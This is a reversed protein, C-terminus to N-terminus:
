SPLDFKKKLREFLLREKAAESKDQKEAAYVRERAERETEPRKFSLRFEACVGDGGSTWADHSIKIDFAKPFKTLVQQRYKELIAIAAEVTKGELGYLFCDSQDHRIQPEESLRNEWSMEEYKQNM